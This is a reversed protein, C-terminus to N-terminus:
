LGEYFRKFHYSPSFLGQKWKSSTSHLGRPPRTHSLGTSLARFKLFSASPSCHSPLTPEPHSDRRLGHVSAKGGEAEDRGQSAM